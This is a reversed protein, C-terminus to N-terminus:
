VEDPHNKLMDKIKDRLVKPAKDQFCSKNVLRRLEIEFDHHQRCYRCLKLHEDIKSYSVEDLQKDIYDYLSKLVEECKIM